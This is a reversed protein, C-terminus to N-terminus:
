IYIHAIRRGLLPLFFPRRDHTAAPASGVSQSVSQSRRWDGRVTVASADVCVPQWGSRGGCGGTELEMGAMERRRAPGKRGGGGGGGGRCRQPGCELQTGGEGGKPGGEGEEGQREGWEESDM